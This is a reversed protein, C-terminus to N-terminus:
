LNIFDVDVHKTLYCHIHSYSDYFNMSEIIDDTTMESLFEKIKEIYKETSPKKHKMFKSLRKFLSGRPEYDSNKSLIESRVFSVYGSFFKKWFFEVNKRIYKAIKIKDDTPFVYMWELENKEIYHLTYMKIHQTIFIKKCSSDNLIM